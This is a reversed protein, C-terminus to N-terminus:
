DDDVESDFLNASDLMLLFEIDDVNSYNDIQEIVALDQILTRNERDLWYGFLGFGIVGAVIAFFVAALTRSGGEKAPKLEKNDEAAKVAVMELTTQTFREDTTTQPLDDLLEWSRELQQLLKRYREDTTLRDEVRRVADAELEGDLYAVLEEQDLSEPKPNTESM